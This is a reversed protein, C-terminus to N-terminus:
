RAMATVQVAIRRNQARCFETDNAPCIPHEAGYGQAELRPPKIGMQILATRVVEARDTSMKKNRAAPGSDMYGGIKLKVTPYAKLIEVVNELQSRSNPFDIDAGDGLFQLRDFDFWTADAVKKKGSEIFGILRAEIGSSAGTIRYGGPLTKEYPAKLLAGVRQLRAKEHTLDLAVANVQGLDATTKAIQDALDAIQEKQKGGGNRTKAAEDLQGRLWKTRADAVGLVEDTTLLKARFEQGGPVSGAIEDAGKHVEALVGQLQAVQSPLPAYSRAAAALMEATERSERHCGVAAGCILSTAVLFV